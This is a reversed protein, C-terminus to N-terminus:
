KGGEQPRECKDWTKGGDRSIELQEKAEGYSFHEDRGVIGADTQTTILFRITGGIRRCPLGLINDELGLEVMVPQPKVLYLSPALHIVKGDAHAKKLAAYPDPRYAIIDGQSLTHSWRLESAALRDFFKGPTDRLMYQPASGGWVPCEGGHWEIWGDAVQEPTLMPKKEAAPIPRRTRSHPDAANTRWEGAQEKYIELTNKWSEGDLEEDDPQDKEGMLLPRWGDPLMDETFDERHWEQGEGLTFGNVSRGLTWPTRYEALARKIRSHYHEDPTELIWDIREALVDGRTKTNM